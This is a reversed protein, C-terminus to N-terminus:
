AERDEAPRSAAVSRVGEKGCSIGVLLFKIGKEYLMEYRQISEHYNSNGGDMIMDGQPLHPILLEIFADVPMGAKVMLLIKRPTELSQVFEKLDYYANLEPNEKSVEETVSSTRNFIAVKYGNDNFNLAINKGMVAMGIVGIQNKM